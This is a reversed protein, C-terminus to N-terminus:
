GKYDFSMELKSASPCRFKAKVFNNIKCTKHNPTAIALYALHWYSCLLSLSVCVDNCHFIYDISIYHRKVM